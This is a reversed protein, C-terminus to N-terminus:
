IAPYGSWKRLLPEYCLSKTLEADQSLVVCGRRYGTEASSPTTPYFESLNFRVMHDAIYERALRKGPGYDDFGYGDDDPVQFDDIVTIAKWRSGYVSLLEESLPLDEGWHADLYVLVPQGAYQSGDTSLLKALSKRSDGLLLKVNKKSRLRMRAFGFNRPVAEISYIPSAFIRAMFETSSGLYTGTEVIAVPRCRQVISHFLAQRAQQGNFPGGWRERMEPFRFYDVMGMRVPGILDAVRQRVRPYVGFPHM